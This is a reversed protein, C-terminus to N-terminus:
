AAPRRQVVWTPVPRLELQRQHAAQLRKITSTRDALDLSTVRVVALGCAEMREERLNDATHQALDRHYAGDYEIVFGAVPDLLDPIGLFRGYRDHVPANVLLPPLGADRCLMRLRSEPPSAAAPDLLPLAARLRRLGRRGPHTQAYGLLEATSCLGARLACDGAVVAETLSPALRLLDFGTRVEQTCPIRGKRTVDDPELVVRMIEIGPRDVVRHPPLLLLVPRGGGDLDTAGHLYAAAWGGIAGGPPLLAAADIIRQRVHDRLGAQRHFGHHPSVWPAKRLSRSSVDVLDRRRQPLVDDSRAMGLCHGM